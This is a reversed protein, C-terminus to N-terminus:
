EKTLMELIKKRWLHMSHVPLRTNPVTFGFLSNNTSGVSLERKLNTTSHVKVIDNLSAM